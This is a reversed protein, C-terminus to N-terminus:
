ELGLSRMIRSVIDDLIEDCEETPTHDQNMTGEVGASVASRIKGKVDDIDVLNMDRLQRFVPIKIEEKPDDKHPRVGLGETNSLKTLVEAQRDFIKVEGVVGDGYVIDFQPKLM